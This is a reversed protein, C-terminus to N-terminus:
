LFIMYEHFCQHSDLAVLHGSNKPSALVSFLCGIRHFVTQYIEIKLIICCKTKPTKVTGQTVAAESKTQGTGADKGTSQNLLSEDLCVSSLFDDDDDDFDAM